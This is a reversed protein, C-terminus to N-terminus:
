NKKKLRKLFKVWDMIMNVKSIWRLWYWTQVNAKNASSCFETSRSNDVFEIHYIHACWKSQVYTFFIFFFLLDMNIFFFITISLSLHFMVYVNLNVHHLLRQPQWWQIGHHIQGRLFQCTCARFSTSGAARKARVRTTGKQRLSWTCLPASRRRLACLAM